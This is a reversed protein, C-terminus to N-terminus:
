HFIPHARNARIPCAFSGIGRNTVMGFCVRTESASQWPYTCKCMVNGGGGSGVHM